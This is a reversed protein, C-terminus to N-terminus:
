WLFSLLTHLGVCLGLLRLLLGPRRPPWLVRRVMTNEDKFLSEGRAKVLLEEPCNLRHESVFEFLSNKRPTFLVLSPKSCPNPILCVRSSPGQSLEEAERPRLIKRQLRLSKDPVALEM